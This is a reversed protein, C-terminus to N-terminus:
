RSRTEREIEDKTRVRNAFLYADLDAKTFSLRGGGKSKFHPIESRSTLKHLHSVSLGTYEAAQETTMPRNSASSSIDLLEQIRGLIAAASNEGTGEQVIRVAEGEAAIFLGHILDTLKGRDEARIPESKLKKELAGIKKM